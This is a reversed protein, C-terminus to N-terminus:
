CFPLSGHICGNIDGNRFLVPYPYERQICFVSPDLLATLHLYGSCRSGQGGIGSVVEKVGAEPRATAYGAEADIVVGTVQGM